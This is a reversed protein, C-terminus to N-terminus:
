DSTKKFFSANYPRAYTTTGRAILLQWKEEGPGPDWNYVVKVVRYEDGERLENHHTEFLSVRTGLAIIHEGAVFPQVEGDLRAHLAQMLCHLRQGPYLGHDLEEPKLREQDRVARIVARLLAETECDFAGIFSGRERRVAARRRRADDIVWFDKETANTRPKAM